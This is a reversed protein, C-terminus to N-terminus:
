VDEAEKELADEFNKLVEEINRAAGQLRYFTAMDTDSDGTDLECMSDLILQHDHQLNSIAWQTPGSHYWKELVDPHPKEPLHKVMEESLM